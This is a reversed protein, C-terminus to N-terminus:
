KITSKYEYEHATRWWSFFRVKSPNKYINISRRRRRRVIKCYPVKKQSFCLRVRRRLNHKVLKWYYNNKRSIFTLSLKMVRIYRRRLTLKKKIRVNKKIILFFSM